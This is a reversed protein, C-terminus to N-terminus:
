VEQAFCESVKNLRKMLIPAIGEQQSLMEAQQMISSAFKTFIKQEYDSLNDLDSFDVNELAEDLEDITLLLYFNPM